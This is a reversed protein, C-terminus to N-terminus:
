CLSNHHNTVKATSKVRAEDSTYVQMNRIFALRAKRYDPNQLRRPFSLVVFLPSGTLFSLKHATATTHHPSM